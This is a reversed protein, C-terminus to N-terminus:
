YNDEINHDVRAVLEMSEIAACIGRALNLAQELELGLTWGMAPGSGCGVNYTGHDEVTKGTLDETTWRKVIVEHTQNSLDKPFFDYYNAWTHPVAKCTENEEIEVQLFNRKYANQETRIVKM